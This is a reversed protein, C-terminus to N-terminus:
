SKVTKGSLFYNKQNQPDAKISEFVARQNEIFEGTRIHHTSFAWWAAEKRSVLDLIGWLARLWRSYIGMMMLIM